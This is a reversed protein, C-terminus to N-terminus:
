VGVPVETVPASVVRSSMAKELEELYRQGIAEWRYQPERVRDFGRKAWRDRAERDYYMQDLALMAGETDIIGGIANIKNITAATGSCPVLCMAGRAWDGFGSWDPGITPVGCAMAEMAPLGWGEGQTTSFLTSFSNYLMPMAQERVNAGLGPDLLLTRNAVGYYEVLQPIDYADDGTPAAHIFLWADSIKRSKVWESFIAITLDFRKRPQNRNVNGVIFGDGIRERDARDFPLQERCGMRDMPKYTQLDVGLPIVSTTGHYGGAYAEKMGFETWFIAHRLGNLGRGRCNLGDVAMVGVVPLNGAAKLYPPINWPDNQVM